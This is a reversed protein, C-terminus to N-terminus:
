QKGNEGSRKMSRSLRDKISKAQNEEGMSEYLLSLHLLAEIHYPSLYLVKNYQIIANDRDNMAEFIVGQLFYCNEDTKNKSSYKMCLELAQEFQGKDALDKVKELPNEDKIKEPVSEEKKPTEEKPTGNSKTRTFEKKIAKINSKNQLTNIVKDKQKKPEEESLTLAFSHPFKVMAYGHQLFYSTETHGTFLVGKPHLLQRIRSVAKLRADNTLYILLNKFFIVHYKELPNITLLNLINDRRFNVLGRIEEDLQYRNMGIETFYKDMFYKDNGRFSVKHYIGETAKKISVESIDIADIQFLEKPFGSEILSIAISYPEEGTSCPASLIKLTRDYYLEKNQHLWLDLYEYPKSDRFFWTEPVIIKEFLLYHLNTSNRLSLLLEDESSIQHEAMIARISNDIGTSGISEIDLGISDELYKYIKKFIM